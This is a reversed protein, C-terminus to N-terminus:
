TAPITRFKAAVDHLRAADLCLEHCRIRLAKEADVHSEDHDDLDPPDGVDHSLDLQGLVVSRTKDLLHEAYLRNIDNKRNRLLVRVGVIQAAVSYAASLLMGLDPMATRAHEPEGAVRTASETIAALSELM